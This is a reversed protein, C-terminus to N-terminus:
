FHSSHNKRNKKKSFKAIIKFKTIEKQIQSSHSNFLILFVFSCSDTKTAYNIISKGIQKQTTNHTDKTIIYIDVCSYSPLIFKNAFTKKSRVKLLIIKQTRQEIYYLDKDKTFRINAFFFSWSWWIVHKM